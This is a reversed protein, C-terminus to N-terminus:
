LRPDTFTATRHAVDANILALDPHDLWVDLLVTWSTSVDARAVEVLRRVAQLDQPTDVTWRVSGADQAAELVRVDFRGHEEYLYPMVHERHHAKTADARARRMVDMSAVEVDLGVPYTRRHPPPLRNATFDRGEALHTSVVRDVIEPAVLPCDGTIRVLMDADHEEAANVMRSLVDNLSGRSVGFGLQEVHQAVPDDSAETSTAVIVEDICRSRKVRQLTWALVTDSEGSHRNLPALPLLVKGPLRQSSARAQIVAVVRPKM